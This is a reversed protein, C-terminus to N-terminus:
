PLGAPLSKLSPIASPRLWYHRLTLRVAIAALLGVGSICDLGGDDMVVAAMIAGDDM